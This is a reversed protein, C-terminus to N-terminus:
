ATKWADTIAGHYVASGHAALHKGPGSRPHCPSTGTRNWSAAARGNAIGTAIPTGCEPCLGSVNGTLDYGCRTCGNRARRSAGRAWPIVWLTLAIAGAGAGPILYSIMLTGEHVGSFARDDYQLFYPIDLDDTVPTRAPTGFWETITVDFRCGKRHDPATGGCNRCTTGECQIIFRDLAVALLVKYRPDPSWDRRGSADLCVTWGRPLVLDEGRAANRCFLVLCLLAFAGCAIGISKRIMEMGGRSSSASHAAASHYGTRRLRIRVSANLLRQSRRWSLSPQM